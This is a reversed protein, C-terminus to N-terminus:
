RGKQAERLEREVKAKLSPEGNFGSPTNGRIFQQTASEGIVRAGRYKQNVEM